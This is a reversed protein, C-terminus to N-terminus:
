GPQAPVSADARKGAGAVRERSRARQARAGAPAAAGGAHEPGAPTGPAHPPESKQEASATANLRSRPQPPPPGPPSPGPASADMRPETGTLRAAGGLRPASHPTCGVLVSGPRPERHSLCTSRLPLGWRLDSVPGPAALRPAKHTQSSSPERHPLHGSTARVSSDAGPGQAQDPLHRGAEPHQCVPVAQAAGSPNLAWSVDDQTQKPRLSFEDARSHAARPAAVGQAEPGGDPGCGLREPAAACPVARGAAAAPPAPPPLRPLRWSPRPRASHLRLARATHPAVRAPGSWPDQLALVQPGLVDTAGSALGQAPRSEAGARDM